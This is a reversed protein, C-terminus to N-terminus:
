MYLRIITDFVGKSSHLNKQMCAITYYGELKPMKEKNAKVNRGTGRAICGVKQEKRFGLGGVKKHNTCSARICDMVFGNLVEIDHPINITRLVRTAWSFGEYGKYLARYVGHLAQEYTINKRKITADEIAKQFKKIGNSSLSIESGRISFGLFKVFHRSDIYEVKKPNLKMGMDHLDAELIGMADFYSTGIFLMDDSYRVYLAGKYSSLKDDTDYLIADALFSAVACGQKLSQFKEVMEGIETDFYWDSHYYRRLMDIVASKGIRKEVKDFTDDIYKIPVSDFYKSLDSKWGIIGGSKSASVIKNSISQIIKGCSIGKQYSLCSKHVMDPCLEFLLDNILSLLVRDIGENAYVTRFTGDDKPIKATHPPAINYKGDRIAIYISVRTNEECLERMDCKNIGKLVGKEIAREWQDPEFLKELLIDKM